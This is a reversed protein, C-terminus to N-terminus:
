LRVQLRVLTSKLTDNQPDKSKADRWLKQADDKQGKVWLVEGLHAAIEPDPKISYARRLLEEAEKLHGLRYQVWGMSDMIFPDEPALKLAKAIM